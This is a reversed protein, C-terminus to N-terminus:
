GASVHSGFVVPRESKLPCCHSRGAARQTWVRLLLQSAADSGGTMLCMM